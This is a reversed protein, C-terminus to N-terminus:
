SVDTHKLLVNILATFVVYGNSYRPTSSDTGTSRSGTRTRTTRVTRTNQGPRCSYSAHVEPAVADHYRLYQNLLEIAAPYDDAAGCVKVVFAYLFEVEPPSFHQYVLPVPIYNQLPAEVGDGCGDTTGMDAMTDAVRDRAVSSSLASFWAVLDDWDCEADLSRLVACVARFSPFLAHIYALRQSPEAQLLVRSAATATRADELHDELHALYGELQHNCLRVAMGSGGSTYVSARICREYLQAVTPAGASAKKKRRKGEEDAKDLAYASGYACRGGEPTEEADSNQDLVVCRAYFDSQRYTGLVMEVATWEDRTCLEALLGTTVESSYRAVTDTGSDSNSIESWSHLFEEHLSLATDVGADGCQLCAKLLVARDASGLFGGYRESVGLLAGLLAGGAEADAVADGDPSTGQNHANCVGAVLKSFWPYSSSHTSPGVGVAATQTTGAGGVVPELLPVAAPFLQRVRGLVQEARSVEPPHSLLLAEYLQVYTGLDVRIRQKLKYLGSPTEGRPVSSRVPTLLELYEFADVSRNGEGGGGCLARVVDNVYRSSVPYGKRYMALLMREARGTQRSELLSRLLVGHSVSLPLSLAIGQGQGPSTHHSKGSAPVRAAAEARQSAMRRETETFLTDLEAHLGAAALLEMRAALVLDVHSAITGSDWGCEIDMGAEAGTAAGSLLRHVSPDQTRMLEWVEECEHVAVRERGQTQLLASYVAASRPLDQRLMLRLLQAAIRAPVPGSNMCCCLITSEFSRRLRLVGEADRGGTRVASTDGSHAPHAAVLDELLRFASRWKGGGLQCCRIAAEFGPVTVHAGGETQLLEVMAMASSWFGPANAPTKEALTVCSSLYIEGLSTAAPARLLAAALSRGEQLLYDGIEAAIKHYGVEQADAMIAAAREALATMKDADNISVTSLLEEQLEQQLQAWRSQLREIAYLVRTSDEVAVSNKATRNRSDDKKNKGGQFYRLKDDKKKKLIFTSSSPVATSVSSSTSGFMRFPRLIHYAQQTHLRSFQRGIQLKGAATRVIAPIM